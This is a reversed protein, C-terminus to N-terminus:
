ETASNWTSASAHALVPEMCQARSRACASATSPWYSCGTLAASACLAPQTLSKLSAPPVQAPIRGRHAAVGKARISAAPAHPLPQAAWTQSPANLQPSHGGEWMHQGSSCILCGRVSYHVECQMDTASEVAGPKHEHEMHWACPYLM